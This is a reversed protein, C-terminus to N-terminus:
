GAPPANDLVVRDRGARKADYLATDARAILTEGDEGRWGACGISVTVDPIGAIREAADARMREAVAHAGAADTEPLLAVFEEGGWRALVDTGRLSRSLQRAMRFLVRDGADHGFVDNLAKFHDVDIMLVSLERGHRRGLSIMRDLEEVAHRRNALGTLVDTRAEVELRANAARLEDSLQKSRVAAGVRAILEVPDFPKHVFDHAGAKLAAAVLEPHAASTVMIVPPGDGGLLEIGEGDPLLLDLVIADPEGMRLMARASALDSATSVTYGATALKDRLGTRIEYSDDVVLVTGSPASDADVDPPLPAASM